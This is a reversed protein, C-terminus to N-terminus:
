RMYPDRPLTTRNDSIIRGEHQALIIDADIAARQAERGRWRGAAVDTYFKSIEAATYVPKEAPASGASHARGPAALTALDLSADQPQAAPPIMPSSSVTTRPAPRQQGGGQPNTAAEEALYAQFFAVVRNADGSNWAEQMLDKRIAGSFIDPLQSWAVFGPHTNLEQWKPVTRSITDNMRQLFSNGTEAQVSGLGMRLREIEAQLPAATEAAVRRMVNVFEPGYEAEEAETILPTTPVPAPAVVASRLQQNERSLQELRDTVQKIQEAHRKAQAELRGAYSKFKHEWDVQKGDDTPADQPAPDQPSVPAVEPAAAVPPQPAVPAPAEPNSPPAVPPANVADAISPEATGLVAKQLEESRKGAELVHRPIKVNPDVAGAPAQKRLEVTTVPQAM